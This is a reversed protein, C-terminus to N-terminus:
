RPRLGIRKVLRHGWAKLRCWEPVPTLLVGAAEFLYSRVMTDACKSTRGSSDVEGSAHRRPTLGAHCKRPHVQSPEPRKERLSARAGLTRGRFNM